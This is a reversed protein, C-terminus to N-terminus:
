VRGVQRRWKNTLNGAISNTISPPTVKFMKAGVKNKVGAVYQMKGRFLAKYGLYAIREPKMSAGRPTRYVQEGDVGARDFFNTEGIGPCLATVTVPTNKLEGALYNSFSLLYAKTANYVAFNPSSYFANISAVNLVKGYGRAIMRPVLMRCLLMPTNVNLENIQYLYNPDTNVVPEIIGVGANNVLIDIELGREILHEALLMGAGAVSLDFPVPTVFPSGALTVEQSVKLLDEQNRAVLVLSYGDRAFLKAFELGFGETAGTILVTTPV